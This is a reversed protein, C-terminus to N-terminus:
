FEQSASAQSVLRIAQPTGDQSILLDAPVPGSFAAMTAPMGLSALAAGTVEVRVVAGGELGQPDDAYPLPIFASSDAVLEAAENRANLTESSAAANGSTVPNQPAENAVPAKPAPSFWHLSLGLALVALAAASLAAM